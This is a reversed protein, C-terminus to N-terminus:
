ELYEGGFFYKRISVPLSFAKPNSIDRHYTLQDSWNTPPRPKNNTFQCVRCYWEADESLEGLDMPPDLCSAHFSNDCGDCM